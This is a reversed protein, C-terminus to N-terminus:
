RPKISTKSRDIDKELFLKGPFYYLGIVAAVIIYIYEPIVMKKTLIVLICIAFPLVFTFKPSLDKMKIKVFLEVYRLNLTIISLVRYLHAIDTINFVTM